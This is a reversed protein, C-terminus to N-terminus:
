KSKKIARQWLSPDKLISYAKNLEEASSYRNATMGVEQNADIGNREDKLEWNLGYWASNELSYKRTEKPNYLKSGKPFRWELVLIYPKDPVTPDVRKELEILIEKDTHIPSQSTFFLGLAILSLLVVYYFSTRHKFLFSQM